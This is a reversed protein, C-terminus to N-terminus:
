EWQHGLIDLYINQLGGNTDKNAVMSYGKELCLDAIIKKGLTTLYVSFNEWLFRDHTNRLIALISHQPLIHLVLGQNIEFM